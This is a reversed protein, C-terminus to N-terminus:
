SIITSALEGVPIQKDIEVRLYHDSLFECGNETHLEVVGRVVTQSDILRQRYSQQLKDSLATLQVMRAHKTDKPVQNPMKDAPTGKRKSYSFVHLYALPLSSLLKYTELHNAETEGPFGTIVDFGIALSPFSENLRDVLDIILSTNYRRGMRSLVEDSGSQLPIHFHPCLKGIGSLRKILRETLLQPEISSIRILELGNISAMNSVVDGLDFKGDRYLGLNVGGLVIEKFGSDAFINAQEIVQKLTASRAHGRAYPVACYSCYFDCGDQIKQFARTHGLMNTSPKFYFEKADMIDAFRYDESDLISALNLKNQNDIIYDVDGMGEIENKSRQAFCGTVIVKIQPNALKRALAQRIHYRSKYDTRNTVTCTNVIYIDAESDWDVVACEDASFQDLLIASEAQNTKCGLTKIAIRIM